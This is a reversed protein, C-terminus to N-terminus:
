NIINQLALVFWLANEIHTENTTLYSIIGKQIKKRDAIKSVGIEKFEDNTLDKLEEVTAFGHERFSPIYRGFGLDTLFASVQQRKTNYTNSYEIRNPKIRNSPFCNLM